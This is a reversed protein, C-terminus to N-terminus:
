RVVSLTKTLTKGEAEVTILYLDDPVRHGDDGRGGWRILNAGAPLTEDLVTRMLRGARNFVCVRAPGPRSLEFSIAVQPEGIAQTRSLIRPTLVLKALPAGTFGPESEAFLAITGAASFPLSLVGDRETGGLRNWTTGDAGLRYVAPTGTLSLTDPLTFDLTAAKRLENEGWDVVWAPGVPEAGTAAPLSPSASPAPQIDVMADRAFAKPPFYLHVEGNISFVESGVASSVTAPATVADYPPLNDVRVTIPVQGILGISDTVVLRVDYPGEPVNETNWTALVGNEVPNTASALTVIGPGTWPASGAAPRVEVRYDQFRPDAATGTITVQGSVVQGFVPSSIVAPPPTADVEFAFRAPSPDVNGVWDRSRVEFVHVGDALDTVELSVVPSWDRIVMGDLFAQYEVDVGEGYGAGYTFPTKRLGLLPSPTTIFWTQPATRDPRHETIGRLPDMSVTHSAFWVHGRSDEMIHTVLNSALGDKAKVAQWTSGDFRVVGNNRGSLWITGASDQFLAIVNRTGLVEFGFTEWGAGNWRGAGRGTGAWINGDRDELLANVTTDASDVVTPTHSWSLGDFRSVGHRTGFWLDGSRAALFDLVEDGAPGDPATKRVPPGDPASWRYLGTSTRFWLDGDGDELFGRVESAPLGGSGDLYNRWSAGDYATAGSDTGAWIWGRSDEFLSGVRLGPLEASFLDTTQRDPQLRLLGGASLGFWLNDGRDARVTLASLPLAAGGAPALKGFRDLLQVGLGDTTFWIEGRADQAFDTFQIVPVSEYETGDSRYLAASPSAQTAVWLNGCNDPELAVVKNLLSGDSTKSQWRWTLGDFHTLTFFGGIWMGGKRDAALTLFTDNRLGSNDSSFADWQGDRYRYVTGVTGFWVGGASDAAVALVSDPTAGSGDPPFHDWITRSADLRSVGASSGVWLNGSLDEAVAVANTQILSGDAATYTQWTDGAPDHRVLGDETALWVEGSRDVLIDQVQNRPLFGNENSYYAWSGSELRAAGATLTGFWLAGGPEEAIALVTHGPLEDRYTRWIGGDTRSAGEDTGFWMAGSRSEHICYVLNAALGGPRAQIRQWDARASGPGLLAAAAVAMAAFRIRSRSVSRTDM